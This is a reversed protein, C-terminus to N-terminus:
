VALFEVAQIKEDHFQKGIVQIFVHTTVDPLDHSTLMNAEQSPVTTLGNKCARQM